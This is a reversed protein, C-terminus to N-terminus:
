YDNIKQKVANFDKILIVRMLQLTEVKRTTPVGAAFSKRGLVPTSRSGITGCQLPAM